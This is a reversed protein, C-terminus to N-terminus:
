LTAFIAERISGLRRFGRFRCAPLNNLRPMVAARAPRVNAAPLLNFCRKGAGGRMVAVSFEGLHFEYCLIDGVIEGADDLHFATSTPDSTSLFHHRHSDAHRAHKPQLASTPLENMAVCILVCTKVCAM